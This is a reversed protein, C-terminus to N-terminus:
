YFIERKRWFNCRDLNQSCFRYNDRLNNSRLWPFHRFGKSQNMQKKNMLQITPHNSYHWSIKNFGKTRKKCHLYKHRFIKTKSRLRMIGELILNDYNILRLRLLLLKLGKYILSLHHRDQGYFTWRHKLSRIKYSLYSSIHNKLNWSIQRSRHM